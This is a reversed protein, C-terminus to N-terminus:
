VSARSGLEGVRFEWPNQMSTSMTNWSAVDKSPMRDFVKAVLDIRGCKTYFDLALISCLSSYCFAKRVVMPVLLKENFHIICSQSKLIFIHNKTLIFLVSLKENFNGINYSVEDRVSINFVNQALDLCGRKAYM